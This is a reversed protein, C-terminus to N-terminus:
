IEHKLGAPGSGSANLLDSNDQLDEQSLETLTESGEHLSHSRSAETSPAVERWLHEPPSNEDVEIDDVNAQSYKCENSLVTPHVNNYDEQYTVYGGLLDSDEDYWPFYLM